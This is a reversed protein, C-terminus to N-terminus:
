RAFTVRDDKCDSQQCASGNAPRSGCAEPTAGIRYLAESQQHQALTWAAMFVDLRDETKVFPDALAAIIALETSEDAEFRRLYAALELGRLLAHACFLDTYRFPIM